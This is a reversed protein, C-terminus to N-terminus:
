PVTLTQTRNETSARHSIVPNPDILISFTSHGPPTHPHTDVVLSVLHKMVQAGPPRGYGPGLLPKRCLGWSLVVLGSRHSCRYSRRDPAILGIDYSQRNPSFPQGHSCKDAQLIPNHCLSRLLLFTSITLKAFKSLTAVRARRLGEGYPVHSRPAFTLSLNTQPIPTIRSRYM